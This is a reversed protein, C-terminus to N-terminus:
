IYNRSNSVLFLTNQISWVLSPQSVYSLIPYFLSPYLLIPYPLIPFSLVPYSLITCSLVSYAPVPNYLVSCTSIPYSLIIITYSLITYSPIPHSTVIRFQVPYSQIPHFCQLGCHMTLPILLLFPRSLSRGSCRCTNCDSKQCLSLPIGRNDGCFYCKM